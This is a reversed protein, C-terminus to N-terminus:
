RAFVILSSCVEVLTNVLYPVLGADIVEQIQGDKGATINSLTWAAEKQINAKKHCLLRPFMSLAGANLVAQTQEDTGTVINGIARLAPTQSPPPPPYSPIDNKPRCSGVSTACLHVHQFFQIRVVIPLEEFGLLNVLRPILGTQVMVEIRDNSGDTLYSVAWCADALVERDDHHLLRVLAPLIQQVATM